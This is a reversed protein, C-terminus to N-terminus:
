SKADWTVEVVSGSRVLVTGSDAMVLRASSQASLITQPDPLSQHDAAVSV